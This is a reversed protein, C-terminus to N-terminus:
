IKHKTMMKVFEQETVCTLWIPEEEIQEETFGEKIFWNILGANLVCGTFFDETPHWAIFGVLYPPTEYHFTTNGTDHNEEAVEFDVNTAVFLDEIIQKSKLLKDYNQSPM